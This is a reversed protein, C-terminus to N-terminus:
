GLGNKVVLSFGYTGEEAVHVCLPGAPPPENSYRAWNKGDRTAWLEVCSVGSPGVDTINYNLKIRRNNVLMTPVKKKLSVTTGCRSVEPCLDGAPAKSLPILAVFGAAFPLFLAFKIRWSM